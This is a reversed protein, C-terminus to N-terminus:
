HQKASEVEKVSYYVYTSIQFGIAGLVLLEIPFWLENLSYQAISTLLYLFGVLFVLAYM